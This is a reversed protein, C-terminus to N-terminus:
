RGRKLKRISFRKAGHDRAYKLAAARTKFLLSRPNSRSEQREYEAVTNGDEDEVIVRKEVKAISKAIKKAAALSHRRNDTNGDGRVVIYKM